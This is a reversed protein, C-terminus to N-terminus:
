LQDLLRGLTRCLRDLDRPESLRHGGNKVFLTEVDTTRLKEAIRLSTQWPVDEDKDGHILRVPCDLPIEAKLLLHDRGDDLLAKTIKYPEEDYCNPIEVFGQTEMQQKQESSFEKSMLDETFDPAAATGVLGAIRDPRALAALLMIWGGMSSGVLVQPGECLRDLALITDDAWEGITGNEFAGSSQGHGTYDFRLFAQGRRRCFDELALAKSGTMDSKFGTLFVVGPSQGLMRCYAIAGGDDRALIESPNPM